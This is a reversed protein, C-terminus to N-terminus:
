LDPRVTYRAGESKYISLADEFIGAVDNLEEQTHESATEAAERLEKAVKALTVPTFELTGGPDSNALLVDLAGTDDLNKLDDTIIVTTEVRYHHWTMEGAVTVNALHTEAQECLADGNENYDLELAYYTDM